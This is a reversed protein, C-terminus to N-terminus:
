LTERTIELDQRQLTVAQTDIRETTTRTVRVEEILFLQKTVVPREEVISYVTTDGEQRVQPLHGIPIDFAVRQVDYSTSILPVDVLEQRQHITKQLRVTETKVTHKNVVIQEDIIPIVGEQIPIVAEQEASETIAKPSSM